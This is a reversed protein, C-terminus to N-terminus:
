ESRSFDMDSPTIWGNVYNAYYLGFLVASVAFVRALAPALEASLEAPLLAGLGAVGLSGGLTRSFTSLSTAVGLHERDVAGQITMPLPTRPDFSDSDPAVRSAWGPTSATM